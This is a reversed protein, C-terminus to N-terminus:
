CAVMYGFGHNELWMHIHSNFWLSTQANIFQHKQGITSSFVRSLVKSLLSILGSYKNSLSISFSFSWYTPWRIHLALENSFIRISPFVSPLLVVSSSITPHCWQSLPYSNSCVRASPSTRPLRTHQMGRPQLSDCFVSYSFLAFLLLVYLFHSCILVLNSEIVYLIRCWIILIYVNKEIVCTINM